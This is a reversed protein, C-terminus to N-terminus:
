DTLFDNVMAFFKRSGMKVFAEKAEEPTFAVAGGPTTIGNQNFLEMSIHEHVNLNRVSGISGALASSRIVTASKRFLTSTARSLM